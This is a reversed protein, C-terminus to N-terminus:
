ISGDHPEFYAVECTLKFNRDDKLSSSAAASLMRFSLDFLLNGSRAAQSVSALASIVQHFGTPVM